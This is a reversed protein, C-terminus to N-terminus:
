TSTRVVPTTTASQSMPWRAKRRRPRLGCDRVGRSLCPLRGAEAPQRNLPQLRHQRLPADGNLHTADGNITTGAGTIKMDNNSHVGGNITRDAGSFSLVDACTTSGAFVAYDAGLGPSACATARAGITLSDVNFVSGLISQATESVRVQVCGAAGSRAGQHPSTPRPTPAPSGTRRLTAAPPPSRRPPPAPFWCGPVPWRRLTQATRRRPRASGPTGSTSRCPGCVRPSGVLQLRRDGPRSWRRRRCAERVGRGTAARCHRRPPRGFASLDQEIRMEVKARLAGALVADIVTTTSDLPYQACVILTGGKTKVGPFSVMTRSAAPDLGVLGKTLCMLKRTSTTAAAAGTILCSDSAGAQAVVGQRVGAGVGQRMAMLDNFVLGFDFIAAMLTVLLPLVLAM